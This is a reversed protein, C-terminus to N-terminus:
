EAESPTLTTISELQSTATGFGVGTREATGPTERPPAHDQHDVEVGGQTLILRSPGPHGEQGTKNMVAAHPLAAGDDDLGGSSLSMSFSLILKEDTTGRLMIALHQIFQTYTLDGEGGTFVRYLGDALYSDQALGLIGLTGRFQGISM